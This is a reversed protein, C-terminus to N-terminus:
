QQAQDYLDSITQNTYALYTSVQDFSVSLLTRGDPLEVLHPDCVHIGRTGIQFSNHETVTNTNLDFTAATVYWENGFNENPVGTGSIRISQHLVQKSM